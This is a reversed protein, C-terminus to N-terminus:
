KYLQQAALVLFMFNSSGGGMVYEVQQWLYPFHKLEPFDPQILATGSVSGGPIYWWDARNLGYGTTISSSGVGSVFSATNSGPNVGLVFNMANLMYEPGVIDPFARHLHYQRVGFEQIGWGAGWIGPQYPVGYPTDRQLLEVRQHHERVADRIASEFVDDDLYPLARGVAWGISAIRAVIAERHELLFAAYDHHGTTLLLEVAAIVRDDFGSDPERDHKWLAEAASTSEHAMRPNYEALVRGAIALAAIGKYERSPHVETFVWRDDPISSHTATRDGEPLDADFLLNDSYNLPDGILRYQELTPVIIGRYLRGLAKYGGLVTLVGHEIQQLLDPVGDPEHIRVLRSEQDIFTNDHDVGFSEYAASLIYVEDAQSEIRLDDDGADHWGGRDLGPVHDGPEFRTLTSPGQVYGDFHNLDVPAMRADDLHCAGHWTRYNEEVRMHCMQVPLFYELTPQWVHRDFVDDAIRFPHTRVDGYEVVYMGPDRVDSFDFQLYDYRLFRGWESPAGTLAETFGGDESVRMIRAAAREDVRPDLEIVAVKPQQPHYGVQSVQVVPGHRWEPDGHPEVYWQVAAVTANRPIPSRVIFWGNNHQMRGDLLQLDGTLSEITFHRLEAEPAVSLKRGEALALPVINGEADHAVPGNPQLPFIGSADDLYWSRGFLATPFLELNFGVRGIWEEPLPRDLDVTILFGEGQPEVSINYVFTLDPYILPNFGQMHKSSDPYMLAATIKGADGDVLRDLEKPVPAWQGPAAELRIDGNSAIREGHQIVSVGGQHGEPYFDQFVMVSVGPKEFYELDNLQFGHQAHVLTSPIFLLLVVLLERTRKMLLLPPYM